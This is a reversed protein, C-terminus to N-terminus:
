MPHVYGKTTEVSSHGMLAATQELSSGGNVSETAFGHRLDHFTHGEIKARQLIRLFQGSIKCRKSQDRYCADQEPFCLKKSVFPIASIGKQLHRDIPIEVRKDHKDTWKILKGPKALSAWELSCIDGIRLGAYRAIHIACYWFQVNAFQKANSDRRSLEIIKRNLYEVLRDFEENTFPVKQRPEKQEHTLLQPKIKVLQSPDGLCYQKISCYNFFSRVAALAARKTALKNGDRTNIWEGIHKEKVQSPALSLVRSERAWKRVYSGHCFATRDSTSVNTMWEAWEDIAQTLTLKKGIVLKNILDHSMAGAKAAVEISRINAAKIVREAQKANTCGTSVTREGACTKITVAIIGSNPRIHTKM